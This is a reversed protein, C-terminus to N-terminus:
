RRPARRLAEAVAAVHVVGLIRPPWFGPDVLVAAPGVREAASMARVAAPGRRETVLSEPALPVAVASVPTTTRRGPPVTAAAGADVLGIPRGAPDLLVLATGPRAMVEAEGLMTGAPVATAPRALEGLDLNEARRSLDAVRVAQGAGFWIFSAALLLAVVTVLSARAGTLAPWGLAVGATVVAIARGAWGAVVTGRRRDGTARWVAAELVRGGDLPLGPLLNFAGVFANAFAASDLLLAPIGSAAGSAWWALAALALNTVPGAISVLASVRPNRMEQQFQTHGGWLTVAYHSVPVGLRRATLGHALEHLFVSLALLVPLMAAAVVTAVLGLRPAAATVYPIFIWTLLGAVVLWSPALVVPAGAVRGIVWGGAVRRPSPAPGPGSVPGPYTGGAGARPRYM